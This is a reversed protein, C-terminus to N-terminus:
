ADEYYAEWRPGEDSFSIDVYSFHSRWVMYTDGDLVIDDQARFLNFINFNGNTVVNIEETSYIWIYSLNYGERTFDLTRPHSSATGDTLVQSATPMDTTETLLTYRPSLGPVQDTEFRAAVQGSAFDEDTSARVQYTTGATLGTLLFQISGTDANAEQTEGFDAEAVAKHRLYIPSGDPEEVSVTATATTEEIASIVLGTIATSVPPVDQGEYTEPLRVSFTFPGFFNVASGQVTRLDGVVDTREQSLSRTISPALRKVQAVSLDLTVVATVPELEAPIHTLEHETRPTTAKRLSVTATGAVVNELRKQKADVLEFIFTATGGATLVQPIVIM